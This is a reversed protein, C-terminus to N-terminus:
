EYFKKVVLLFEENENATSITVRLFGQIQAQMNKILINNKNLFDFLENSNKAKFLIFNADSKYAIIEKIANLKNFVVERQVKIIEANKHILNKNKLLFNASIMTLTNINYPM